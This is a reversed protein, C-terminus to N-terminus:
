EYDYPDDRLLEIGIWIAASVVAVILITFAWALLKM